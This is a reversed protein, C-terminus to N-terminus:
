SQNSDIIWANDDSALLDATTIYIKIPLNYRASFNTLSVRINHYTGASGPKNLVVILHLLVKRNSVSYIKKAAIYANNITANFRTTSFKIKEFYKVEAIHITENQDAIADFILPQNLGPIEFKVNEFFAIDTLSRLKEIASKEIEKLKLMSEKKSREAFAQFDFNTQPANDSFEPEEPEASTETENHSLPKDVDSTQVEVDCDSTLESASTRPTTSTNELTKDPAGQTEAAVPVTEEVVEESLKKDREDPTVIGFLNLFHNQNQYDSPAYLTKHNYNLTVFFTGVLLTPFLMLFWIYTAQNEPSIFPLVATGSIEAIAAFRSIVTLPNKIHGANDTM